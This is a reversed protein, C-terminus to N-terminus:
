LLRLAQWTQQENWVTVGNLQNILVQRDAAIQQAENLLAPNHAVMVADALDRIESVTAYETLHVHLTNGAQSLGGFAAGLANSLALNLTEFNVQDKQYVLQGAM